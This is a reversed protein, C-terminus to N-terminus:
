WIRSTAARMVFNTMSPHIQSGWKLHQLTRLLSTTAEYLSEMTVM